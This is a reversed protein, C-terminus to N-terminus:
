SEPCPSRRTPDLLISTQVYEGVAVIYWMISIMEENERSMQICQSDSVTLNTSCVLPSWESCLFDFLLLSCPPAFGAAVDLIM